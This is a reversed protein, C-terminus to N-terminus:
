RSKPRPQGLSLRTGRSNSSITILGLRCSVITRQFSEIVVTSFAADALDKDPRLANGIKPTGATYRFTHRKTAILIATIWWQNHDLFECDLATEKPRSVFCRDAIRASPVCTTMGGKSMPSGLNDGSPKCSLAAILSRHMASAEDAKGTAALPM